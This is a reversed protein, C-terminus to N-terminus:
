RSRQVPDGVAIQYVYVASYDSSGAPEDIIVAFQNRTIQVAGCYYGQDSVLQSSSLKWDDEGDKQLVAIRIEYNVKSNSSAYIVVTYRDFTFVQKPKTNAPLASVDERETIDVQNLPDCFWDETLDASRPKNALSWAGKDFTFSVPKNKPNTSQILEWKTDSGRRVRIDRDSYAALTAQSIAFSGNEAGIAIMPKLRLKEKDTGWSTVAIILLFTVARKMSKM